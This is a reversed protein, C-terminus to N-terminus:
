AGGVEMVWLLVMLQGVGEAHDYMRTLQNLELASRGAHQERALRGLSFGM